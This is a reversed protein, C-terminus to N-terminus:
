GWNQQPQVSNIVKIPRHQENRTALETNHTNTHKYTPQSQVPSVTNYQVTSYKRQMYMYLLGEVRLDYGLEEKMM